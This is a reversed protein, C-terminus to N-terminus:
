PSPGVPPSTGQGGVADQACCCRCSPRCRTQWSIRGMGLFLPSPVRYGHSCPASTPTKPRTPANRTAPRRDARAGPKPRPLPADPLSCPRRADLPEAADLAHPLLLPPSLSFPPHRRSLSCSALPSPQSNLHAALPGLTLTLNTNKNKKEKKIEFYVKLYSM